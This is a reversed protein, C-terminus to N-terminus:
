ESAHRSGPIPEIIKERVWDELAAIDLDERTRDVIVSSGIHRVHGFPIRRPQADAQMSLRRGITVVWRGLRGPLRPGLALPGSLLATVHWTGDEGRGFEVDDVKCVLGGELDVVQHDLLRLRLDFAQGADDHHTM